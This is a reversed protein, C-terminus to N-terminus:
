AGYREKLFEQNKYYKPNMHHAILVPLLQGICLKAAIIGASAFSLLNLNKGDLLVYQLAVVMLVFSAVISLNNFYAHSRYLNTRCGLISTLGLIPSIITSLPFVFLFSVVTTAVRAKKLQVCQALIVITTLFDFVTLLIYLCLPIEVHRTIPKTRMNISNATSFIM